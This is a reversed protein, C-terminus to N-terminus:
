PRAAYPRFRWDEHGKYAMTEDVLVFLQPDYAKLMERTTIPRDADNPSQGGGAADFYAMVGARWYEARDRAAPVGKWLNKETAAGLITQLAQDFEIDLRKVRLEYQQVLNGRNNWNPDVPRFATVQYFGRALVSVVMSEGSFPDTRLNLVNEEPVVMLKLESSYDLYRVEDFGAKQKAEKFEPLDSLREGQGLVVLRAGDAIMAKLIDHRYAFMKRITDNAKLMAEDRVKPSGLVPFERAFTFKTYYPDIKFKAPPAIVSPQVQTPTFRFDTEPTLNFITRVLEYADPDYQKLQERTGIPNHNWNDISQLRLLVPLGGGLVRRLKRGRLRVELARQQHRQSLNPDVAPEM